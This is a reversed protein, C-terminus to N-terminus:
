SSAFFGHIVDKASQVLPHRIEVPERLKMLRNVRFYIPPHPDLRLWEQLRNSPAREYLLRKFGIKELADGLVKPKGIVIASVLDARAEFFKAIFYIITMVAWFYFLFLVSSFLLPFLPLLVYFRFLFEIGTLAYLLLPDRGRLHGFEHGLVGLVEDESLQNLLGTTILVTGRSPSPGSAAANPVTTNSVVIEPIPFGFRDATRKVLEYVNLKKTSLDEPNCASGHKEFVKQVAACDIEGRKALTEEYIEKKIQLLEDKSYKHASDGTESGNNMPLHYELLHINPNSQTIHWDATRAIIKNSYFVFVLQVALLVIPALWGIILFLVMGLSIFVVSLLIQTELFLRNLSKEKAHLKEPVIDEGESWALFLTNSRVKEEFFEVVIIIDQKAEEVEEMSATPQLRKINLKLPKSGIVEASLSQKGTSDLLTFAISPFGDLIKRSVDAFRERQPKIYKQDIFDILSQIYERPTEIEITYSSTEEMM